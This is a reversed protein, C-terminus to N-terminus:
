YIFIQLGKKMCFAQFSAGFWGCTVEQLYQLPKVAFPKISVESVAKVDLCWIEIKVFM